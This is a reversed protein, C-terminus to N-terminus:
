SVIMAAVIDRLHIALTCKHDYNLNLAECIRTQRDHYGEIFKVGEFSCSFKWWKRLYECYSSNPYLFEKEDDETYM